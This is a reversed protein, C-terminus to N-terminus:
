NLIYAKYKAQKVFDFCLFNLNEIFKIIRCTTFKMTYNQAANHIKNQLKIYLYPLIFKRNYYIRSYM